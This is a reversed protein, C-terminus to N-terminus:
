AHKSELKFKLLELNNGSVDKGSGCRWQRVTQPKVGLLNAVEVCNVDHKTMLEKLTQRNAKM